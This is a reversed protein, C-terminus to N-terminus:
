RVQRGHGIWVMSWYIPILTNNLIPFPFFFHLFQIISLGLVFHIIGSTRQSVNIILDVTQSIPCEFPCTQIVAIRLRAKKKKQCHFSRTMALFKPLEHM